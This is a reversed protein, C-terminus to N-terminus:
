ASQLAAAFAPHVHLLRVTEGSKDADAGVTLYLSLGLLIALGTAALLLWLATFVGAVFGVAAVGALVGRVREVVATRRAAAESLPVSGAIRAPVNRVMRRRREVADGLVGRRVGGRRRRTTAPEGTLACVPPFAGDRFQDTPVRVTPM